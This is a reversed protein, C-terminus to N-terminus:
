ICCVHCCCVRFQPCTLLLEIKLRVGVSTTFHSHYHHPEEILNLIMERARKIQMPRLELASEKQFSQHFIQRNLRWETDYKM